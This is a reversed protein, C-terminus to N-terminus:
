PVQATEEEKEKPFRYIWEEPRTYGLRERVVRELFVPDTLLKDLYEEKAALDREIAHIKNAYEQDRTKLYSLQNRTKYLEMAMIVLVISCMVLLCTLLTTLVFQKM